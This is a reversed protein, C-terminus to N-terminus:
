REPLLEGGLTLTLNPNPYLAPHHVEVIKYHM